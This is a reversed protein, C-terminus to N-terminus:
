FKFPTGMFDLIKNVLASARASPIPTAPQSRLSLVVVTVGAVGGAELLLLVVTVVGGVGGADELEEDLVSVDLEDGEDLLEDDFGLEDEPLMLEGLEELELPVLPLMLPEDLPEPVPEDAELPVDPVPEDDEDLVVVGFYDRM